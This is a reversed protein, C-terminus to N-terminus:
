ALRCRGAREFVCHSIDKRCFGALSAIKRNFARMITQNISIMFLISERHSICPIHRNSRMAPRERNGRTSHADPVFGFRLRITQSRPNKNRERPAITEAYCAYKKGGARRM